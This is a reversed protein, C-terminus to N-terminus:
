DSVYGWSLISINFKINMKALKKLTLPYLVIDMQAFDSQIFFKIIVDYIENYKILADCNIFSNDLFKVIIKNLEENNTYKEEYIWIDNTNKGIVKSVVEGERIIRSASISLDSDMEEFNINNGKIIISNKGQIDM